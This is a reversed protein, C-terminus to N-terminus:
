EKRGGEEGGRREDGRQCTKSCCPLRVVTLPHNPTDDSHWERDREDNHWHNGIQGEKIQDPPCPGMPPTHQAALTGISQLVSGTM